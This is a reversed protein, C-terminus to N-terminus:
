FLYKTGVAGLVFQDPIQHAFQRIADFGSCHSPAILAPNLAKVADVTRQIEDEDASVLHFGGLIAWVKDVGSLSRAYEVSNLIGSHACGALIVLGKGQVNIVITQDDDIHDRLFSDGQRYVMSDPTGATEFSLRPVAGTAWCGPGLQYPSESLVLDAGAAEWAQRSPPASALGPGWKTGNKFINWRERFVAPHAVVPVRHRALWEDIEQVSVDKEWKRPGPRAGMAALVDLLAATHDGHGHSLAIIDITGPEVKMRRMNELLTLQTIGADLLIRQNADHLEILAAFGHEALLPEDTFRKVTDTSKVLLDARNDVLVTISVSQTEGFHNITHM